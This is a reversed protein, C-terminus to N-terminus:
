GVVQPGVCHVVVEVALLEIRNRPLVHRAQEVRDLVVVRGRHQVIVLELALNRARDVLLVKGSDTREVREHTDQSLQLRISGRRVVRQVRREMAVHRFLLQGCDHTGRQHLGDKLLVPEVNVRNLPVLNLIGVVAIVACQEVQPTMVIVVLPVVVIVDLRLCHCRVLREVVSTGETLSRVILRVLILRGIDVPAVRRHRVHSVLDAREKRLVTDRETAEVTRVANDPCRVTSSLVRVM